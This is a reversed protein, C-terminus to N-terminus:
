ISADKIQRAAEKAVCVTDSISWVSAGNIEKNIRAGMPRIWADMRDWRALPIDNMHKDTSALIQPIGIMDGVFRVVAPTVFQAYYERHAKPGDVKSAAMYEDRTM